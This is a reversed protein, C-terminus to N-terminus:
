IGIVIPSANTVLKQRPASGFLGVGVGVSDLASEAFLEGTGAIDGRLV